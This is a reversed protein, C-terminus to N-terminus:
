GVGVGDNEVVEGDGADDDGLGDAVAVAVGLGSALGTTIGEPPMGDLSGVEISEEEPEAFGVCDAAVAGAALAPSDDDFALVGYSM